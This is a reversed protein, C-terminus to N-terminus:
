SYGPLSLWMRLCLIAQQHTVKGWKRTQDLLEAVLHQLCHQGREAHFPGHHGPIGPTGRCGPHLCRVGVLASFGTGERGAACAARFLHSLFMFEPLTHILSESAM